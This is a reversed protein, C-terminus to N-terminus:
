QEMEPSHVASKAIQIFFFLFSSPVHIYDTYCYQTMVTDMFNISVTTVYVVLAHKIYSTPVDEIIHEWLLVSRPVCSDLVM